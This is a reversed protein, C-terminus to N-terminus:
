GRLQRLFQERLHTVPLRGQNDPLVIDGHDHNVHDLHRFRAGINECTIPRHV